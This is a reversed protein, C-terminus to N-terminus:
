EGLFVPIGALARQDTLGYLEFGTIFLDSEVTMWGFFYDSINFINKALGVIKQNPGITATVTKQLQGDYSYLKFTLNANSQNPNIVAVGTWYTDINDYSGTEVRPFLLKKAIYKASQLGAIEGNQGFVEYGALYQGEGLYSVSIWSTNDPIVKEGNVTWYAAVQLIKGLYGIEVITEKVINGASDYATVKLPETTKNDTEDPAANFNVLAIGTWWGNTSDIHSFFITKGSEVDLALGACENEAKKGFVETAVMNPELFEENDLDYNVFLGWIGGYAGLDPLGGFLPNYLDEEFDFFDTQNQRETNFGSVLNDGNDVYVINSQTNAVNTISCLTFWQNEPTAIHPVYLGNSYTESPVTAIWNEIGDSLSDCFGILRKTSTVKAYSYEEAMAYGTMAFADLTGSAEGALTGDAKYVSLTFNASEDSPNTIYIYTEFTKNYASFNTAMPFYLNYESDSSEGQETIGVSEFANIVANSETSNEGYLDIAAQTFAQRAMLFDSNPTLYVTEGRYYIQEAKRRGIAECVLYFAKNPIGSNIHVGGNDQSASLNVFENMHAPQWFPSSSSQGNHPDSLDRLATAGYENSKLVTEGVQWNTTDVCVAFVDSMSENLAGSEFQYVLGCTKETVGHTLEHACVDFSGALNYFLDGGDGFIMEQGDWFANDFGQNPVQRFNVFVSIAGGTGDISNRNHTNYFYDYVKSVYYLASGGAAIDLDDDFYLDSNPDSVLYIGGSTDTHAADYVRITGTFNSTDLEGPFMPKSADILYITGNYDWASIEKYDGSDILYAQASVSGTCINNISNIIEGTLANVFVTYGYAQVYMPKLEIKWALVPKDIHWNYIVLKATSKSGGKCPFEAFAIKAAEKESISPLTEVSSINSIKGNVCYVSGLGSVHVKVEEPWVEVDKYYHKFTFHNRNLKDVTINKYGFTNGINLKIKLFKELYEKAIDKKAKKSPPTLTGKEFIFTVSQKNAVQKFSKVQPRIAYLQNKKVASVKLKGNTGNLAFVNTIVFIGLMFLFLKKKFVPM